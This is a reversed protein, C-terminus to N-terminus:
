NEWDDEELFSADDDDEGGGVIDGDEDEDSEDYINQVKACEDEDAIREFRVLLESKTCFRGDRSNCRKLDCLDFLQIESCLRQTQQVLEPQPEEQTM